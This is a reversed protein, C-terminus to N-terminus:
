KWKRNTYMISMFNCIKPCVCYMFLDNNCLYMLAVYYCDAFHYISNVWVAVIVMSCTKCPVCM